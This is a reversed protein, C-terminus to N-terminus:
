KTEPTQNKTLESDDKAENLGANTVIISHKLTELLDKKATYRTSLEIFRLASEKSADGPTVFILDNLIFTTYSNSNM